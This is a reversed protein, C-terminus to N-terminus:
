QPLGLRHNLTDFLPLLCGPLDADGRQTSELGNPTQSLTVHGHADTDDASADGHAGEGLIGPFARSVCMGRAWLLEDVSALCGPPLVDALHPVLQRFILDVFGRAEGIAAGASTNSLESRLPASWCCPEPSNTPLSRLYVHFPNAPDKRGVAVFLWLVVRGDLWRPDTLIDENLHATAAHAARGLASAGAVKVTLVCSHPIRFLPTGRKTKRTGFAGLGGVGSKRIQVGDVRAGEDALWKLLAEAMPADAAM